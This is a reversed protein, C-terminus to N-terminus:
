ARRPPPGVTEGPELEPVLRSEARTQGSDELTADVARRLLHSFRTLNKAYRAPRPVVHRLTADGDLVVLSMDEPFRVGRRMLHGLATLAQTPRMVVLATFDRRALLGDATAPIADGDPPLHGITPPPMQDAGELLGAEAEANGVLREEPGLFLVNAPEHGLRRLMAMAHRGAARYDVDVSRLPLEHPASGMVVAPLRRSAFWGQTQPSCRLLVYAAPNLQRHLAELSRHSGGDVVSPLTAIELSFGREGVHRSLVAFQHLSFGDLEELKFPSLFVMRRSARAAKAGKGVIAWPANRRWSVRGERELLRLARHLTPRSVGVREALPREGPLRGTWEGADLLRRLVEAAYTAM